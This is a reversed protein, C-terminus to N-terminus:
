ALRWKWPQFWRTMTQSPLPGYRMTPHGYGWRFRKTPFIYKVHPWYPGGFLRVGIFYLVALIPYLWAPFRREDSFARIAICLSLRMDAVLREIWSGGMWYPEDHMVCCKFWDGDWSM